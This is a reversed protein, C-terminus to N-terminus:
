DAARAAEERAPEALPKEGAFGMQMGIKFVADLFDQDSGSGCLRIFAGVTLTSVGWPGSGGVVPVSPDGVYKMLDGSFSDLRYTIGQIQVNYGRLLSNLIIGARKRADLPIFNDAM